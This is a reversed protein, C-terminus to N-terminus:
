FYDNCSLGIMALSNQWAYSAYFISHMLYNNLGFIDVCM